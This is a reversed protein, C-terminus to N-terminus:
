SWRLLFLVADRDTDFLVAQTVTRWRGRCNARCWEQIELETASLVRVTYPWENIVRTEMVAALTPLSPRTVM